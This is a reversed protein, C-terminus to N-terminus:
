LHIWSETFTGPVRRRTQRNRISVPVGFRGPGVGSRNTPSSVVPRDIMERLLGHYGVGVDDEDFMGEICGVRNHARFARGEVATHGPRPV